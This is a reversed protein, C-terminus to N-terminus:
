KPVKHNKDFLGLKRYIRFMAFKILECFSLTSRYYYNFKKVFKLIKERGTEPLLDDKKCLVIDNGPINFFVNMEHPKMERAYGYLYKTSKKTTLLYDEKIVEPNKNGYLDVAFNYGRFVKNFGPVLGPLIEFYSDYVALSESLERFAFKKREILLTSQLEFTSLRRNSGIEDFNSTLSVRPYVFYKNHLVMYGIFYKKWSRKPWWLVHEPVGQIKTLDPGTNYWQRFGAWQGSTWLQGWSCAYQLFYVDSADIVPSFPEPNVRENYKYNFLGIGSINDHRSYFKMAQLSYDYFFPSVYLDDELIIVSGYKLSLDGCKIIHNRLGLNGTHVIVEKEGAGWEFKEAYDVIANNGESHDISIILKTDVPYTAKNLSYLLRKLSDLRNYAVVVIVPKENMQINNQRGFASPAKMM